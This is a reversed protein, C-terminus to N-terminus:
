YPLLYPHNLIENEWQNFRFPWHRQNSSISLWHFRDFSRSIQIDRRPTAPSQAITPLTMVATKSIIFVPNYHSMILSDYKFHSIILSDYRQTYLPNGINLFIFGISERAGNYDTNILHCQKMSQKNVNNPNPRSFPRYARKM